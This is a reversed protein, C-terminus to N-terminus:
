KLFGYPMYIKMSQIFKDKIVIAEEVKFLLVMTFYVGTGILIEFSLIMFQLIKSPINTPMFM